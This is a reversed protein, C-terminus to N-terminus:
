KGFLKVKGAYKYDFYVMLFIFGFIMLISIYSLFIIIKKNIGEEYDNMLIAQGYTTIKDDLYKIVNNHVNQSNKLSDDILRLLDVSLNNNDNKSNEFKKILELIDKNENDKENSSMDSHHDSDEFNEIDYKSICTTVNDHKVWNTKKLLPQDGFFIDIFYLKSAFNDLEYSNHYWVFYNQENDDAVKIADELTYVKGFYTLVKNKENEEYLNQAADYNKFIKWRDDGSIIKNFSKKNIIDYSEEFPIDIGHKFKTIKIYKEAELRKLDEIKENIKTDYESLENKSNKSKLKKYNNINKVIRPVKFLPNKCENFTKKIDILDKYNNKNIAYEDIYISECKSKFKDNNNDIPCKLNIKIPTFNEISITVKENKKLGENECEYVIELYIEKNCNRTNQIIFNLLTEKSELTCNKQNEDCKLIFYDNYPITALIQDSCKLYINITTTDVFVQKEPKYIMYNYELNDKNIQRRTFDICDNLSYKTSNSKSEISELNHENNNNLCGYYLDHPDGSICYNNLDNENFACLNNEDCDNDLICNKNINVM